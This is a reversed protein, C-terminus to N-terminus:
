FIKANHSYVSSQYTNKFEQSLIKDDIYIKLRCKEM